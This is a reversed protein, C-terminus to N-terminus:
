IWSEVIVPDDTPDRPLRTLGPPLLERVGDLTPALLVFAVPAGRRSSHPRAVFFAPHDSPKEYITWVLLDGAAQAYMQLRLANDAM